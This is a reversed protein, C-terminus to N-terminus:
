WDCFIFWMDTSRQILKDIWNYSMVSWFDIFWWRFRCNFISHLSIIVSSLRNRHSRSVHKQRCMNFSNRWKNKSLRMMNAGTEDNAVACSACEVTSKLQFSFRWGSFCICANLIILWIQARSNELSKIIGLGVCVCACVIMRPSHFWNVKGNSYNDAILICSICVSKASIM